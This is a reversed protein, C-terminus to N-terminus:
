LGFCINKQVANTAGLILHKMRLSLILFIFQQVLHKPGFDRLSSHFIATAATAGTGRSETYQEASLKPPDGRM